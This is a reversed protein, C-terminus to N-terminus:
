LIEIVEAQASKIWLVFIRMVRLMALDTAIKSRILEEAGQIDGFVLLIGAHYRHELVFQRLTSIDKTFGAVRGLVPKIEIVCLNSDMDGPEHVVLDPKLNGRIYPHRGKDLEGGLWYPFGADDCVNRLQHYLEYSFLRERFVEDTSGAVPTQFYLWLIRGLAENLLMRFIAFDKEM